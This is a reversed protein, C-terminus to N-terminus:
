NMVLIEVEVEKLTTNKLVIGGLSLDPSTPQPSLVPSFTSAEPSYPELDWGHHKVHDLTKGTLFLLNKCPSLNGEYEWYILKEVEPLSPDYKVRIVIMSVEGQDQAINGGYLNYSEGSPIYVRKKFSGGNISAPHFFNSLDVTDLVQSGMIIKLFSGEFVIKKQKEPSCNAYKIFRPDSSLINPM